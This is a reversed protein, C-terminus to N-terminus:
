SAEAGKVATHAVCWSVRRQLSAELTKQVPSPGEPHRTQQLSHSTRGTVPLVPGRALTGFGGLAPHSPELYAAASSDGKGPGLTGLCQPREGHHFVPPLGMHPPVDRALGPRVAVGAAMDPSRLGAFAVALACGGAAATSWGRGVESCSSGVVESRQTNQLDKETRQGM